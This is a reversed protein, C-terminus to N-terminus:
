RPAAYIHHAGRWYICLDDVALGLASDKPQSTGVVTKNSGDPDMRWVLGSQSETFYVSGNVRLDGYTDAGNAHSALTAVDGGSKPVSMIWRGSTLYDYNMFYVTQADFRLTSPVPIGGPGKGLFHFMGQSDLATVGGYEVTFYIVGDSAQVDTSNPPIPRTSTVVGTDTVELLTNNQISDGYFFVDDGPASSLGLFGPTMEVLLTTLAGGSKPLTIISSGNGDWNVWDLTNARLVITNSVKTHTLVEVQGGGKPVRAVGNDDHFYVYTDDQEIDSSGYTAAALVTTGHAACTPSIPADIGAVMIATADAADRVNPVSTDAVDVTSADGVNAAPGDASADSALTAEEDPVLGLETRAGCALLLITRLAVRPAHM